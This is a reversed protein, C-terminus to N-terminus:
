DRSRDENIRFLGPDPKESLNLNFLSVITEFGQPDTVTWQKLVFTGPDFILNIRSTGGFTAKDEILISVANQSNGVELVRTDRSLDVQSKLLFKLPTQEIYALDQTNLRRNRVAVSRGDAVVEMVAPADYAFRLKGPKQVYLKGETRKGDGGIQIFDAIMTTVSNLWANAKRIAEAASPSPATAKSIASAAPNPKAAPPKPAAQQTQQPPKPQINTQATAPTAALILAPLAWFRLKM